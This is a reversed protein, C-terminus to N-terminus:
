TKLIIEKKERKRKQENSVLRMCFAKDEMEEAKYMNRIDKLLECNVVFQIM